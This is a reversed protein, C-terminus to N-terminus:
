KHVLSLASFCIRHAADLSEKLAGESTFVNYVWQNMCVNLRTKILAFLAIYNVFQVNKQYIYFEVSASYDKTFYRYWSTTPEYGVRTCNDKNLWLDNLIVFSLKFPKKSLLVHFTIILFYMDFM